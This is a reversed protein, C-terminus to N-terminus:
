VQPGILKAPCLNCALRQSSGFGDIDFDERLTGRCHLYSHNSQQALRPMQLLLMDIPTDRSVDAEREVQIVDERTGITSDM